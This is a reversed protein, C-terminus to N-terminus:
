SRTPFEGAICLAYNTKGPAQKRLDPLMFNTTGNGGYRTQLVSFLASYQSIQLTQGAAFMTNPPPFDAATLTVTGMMCIASGAGSGTNRMDTQDGTGFLAGFGSTTLLASAHVGDLTDADLGSDTGDVTKVATLLESPTDSADAGPSGTLGIPGQPGTAGNLGAAGSAGTAGTHGIAGDAGTPGAAGTLGTAGAAGDKGAAGARGNSGDDGTKGRAGTKGQEGERNFSIATELSGCRRASDVVRLQGSRDGVCGIIVNSDSGKATVAAFSTGGLAVFLALLAIPQQRLVTLLRRTM